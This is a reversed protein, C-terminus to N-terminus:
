TFFLKTLIKTGKNAFKEEFINEFDDSRVHSFYLSYKFITFHLYLLVCSISWFINKSFLDSDVHLYKIKAIISINNAIWQIIKMLLLFYRKKEVMFRSMQFRNVDDKINTTTCMSQWLRSIPLYNRVIWWQWTFKNRLYSLYEILIFTM